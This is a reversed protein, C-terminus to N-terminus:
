AAKGKTPAMSPAELQAMAIKGAPSRALKAARVMYYSLSYGETAADIRIQRSEADTVHITLRTPM